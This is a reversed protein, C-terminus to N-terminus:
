SYTCHSSGRDSYSKRWFHSTMLESKQTIKYLQTYHPSPICVDGTHNVCTGVLITNFNTYIYVRDGYIQMTLVTSSKIYPCWSLRVLPAYQLDSAQYWLGPNFGMDSGGKILNESWVPRIITPVSHLNGCNWCDGSHQNTSRYKAGGRLDHLYM